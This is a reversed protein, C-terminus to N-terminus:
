FSRDLSFHVYLSIQIQNPPPQFSTAYGHCWGRQGNLFCWPRIDSSSVPVTVEHQSSGCLLLYIIKHLFKFWFFYDQLIEPLLTISSATQSNRKCVSRQQLSKKCRDALLFVRIKSYLNREVNQQM